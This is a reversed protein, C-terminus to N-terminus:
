VIGLLEYCEDVIRSAADPCALKAAQEEMKRLTNRDRYLSIIEDALRQGTLERELIMRGAGQKQMMEANKRQHDDAAYPYPIMIAGRGWACLETITAAGARCIVLHAARYRPAMDEIFPIVAADVGERKYTEQVWAHDNYGTQHIIIMEGKIDALYPLSAVLAKNIATAGQSGGLVLITFRDDRRGNKAGSLVEKRLPNGTVRVKETPFYRAGQQWSLFVRHALRSTLRNTLGPQVNQEQIARKIGLLYAACIVGAASYGGLGIVLSPSLSRLLCFAHIIGGLFAVGGSLKGWFSAGKLPAAPIMMLRYGWRALVERELKRGTGIFVVEWGGRSTFEEALAIGPFLHGGTGGGAIVVIKKM